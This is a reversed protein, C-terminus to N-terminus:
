EGGDRVVYTIAKRMEGTDILPRDSGKRRITEESNKQWHNRADTFWARSANQGTMGARKLHQRAAEPDSDLIAHAAEGLEEAIPERNGSAEIAPEIVPRKPIGKLPSGNTHIFMLQANNVESESAAILKKKRKSMKGSKTPKTKEAQSLLDQRRDSSEPIGVLVELKALKSIQAFLSGSKDMTKLNVTPQM